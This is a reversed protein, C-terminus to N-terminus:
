FSHKLESTVETIMFGWGAQGHNGHSLNLSTKYTGQPFPAPYKSIDFTVNTLRFQGQPRFFKFLSLKQFRFYKVKYPCKQFMQPATDKLVDYVSQLYINSSLSEVSSCWEFVPPKIVQRFITGYRYYVVVEVKSPNSPM